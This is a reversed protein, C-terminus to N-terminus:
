SAASIVASCSFILQKSLNGPNPGTLAVSISSPYLTEECNFHQQILALHIEVVRGTARIKGSGQFTGKNDVCERWIVEGDGLGFETVLHFFFTLGLHRLLRM